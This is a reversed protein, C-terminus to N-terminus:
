CTENEIKMCIYLISQIYKGEKVRDNACRGGITVRGLCYKNKGEQGENKFHINITLYPNAM